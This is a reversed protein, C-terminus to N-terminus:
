RVGDCVRQVESCTQDLLTLDSKAQSPPKSSAPGPRMNKCPKLAQWSDESTQRRRKPGELPSLLKLALLLVTLERGKVQGDRADDEGGGGSCGGGSTLRGSGRRRRGNMRLASM